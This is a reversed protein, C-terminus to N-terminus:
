HHRFASRILVFICSLFLSAFIVAVLILLKNPAVPSFSSDPKNVISFIEIKGTFASLKELDASIINRQTELSRLEISFPALSKGQRSELIEIQQKLAKVGLLYYRSDVVSLQVNELDKFPTDTIGLSQAIKLQEKLNTLEDSLKKEEARSVTEYRFNLASLNAVYSQKMKASVDRWLSDNVYLLYETLLSVGENSNQHLISVKRPTFDPFKSNGSELVLDDFFEMFNKYETSNKQNFDLLKGTRQEWFSKVSGLSAIQLLVNNYNRKHDPAAVQYEATNLQSPMVSRYQEQTVGDITAEIKYYSPLAKLVFFCVITSVLIVVLITYRESWLKKLLDVLDIEDDNRSVKSETYDSM